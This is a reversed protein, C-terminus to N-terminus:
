DLKLRARIEPDEPLYIREIPTILQERHEQTINNRQEAVFETMDFIEIIEKKGYERLTKGRLGLQLARRHLSHGTPHHDPDWQMRVNSRSGAKKWEEYDSYSSNVFITEIAQALLSDFFSRRLRIALTIEQGEKTGWGSRYMMWLFNTKIWSTRSYSFEGWFYGKEIANKGISPRYAQYVIISDEDFYALIHRGSKPWLPEQDLYRETPIM